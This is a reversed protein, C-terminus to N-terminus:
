LPPVRPSRPRLPISRMVNWRYAPSAGSTRRLEVLEVSSIELPVPSLTRLRAVSSIVPAAARDQNNYQIGLHPRFGATPKGGPVCAQRGIDSLAAHLRVLPSWPSLTYRIAGRSGAMPHALIRFTEVPMQETLDGLLQVQGEPVRDTDGIRPMTVHLGKGPVRDMALHSLEEQCRQAQARLDSADPFTLMWYYVRRGSTWGPRAWHNTMRDLMTFARWDHDVLQEPANLDAPPMPPFAGPHVDLEPPM